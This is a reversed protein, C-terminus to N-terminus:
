GDAYFEGMGPLLLSYIIALVTSKKGSLDISSFNINDDNSNDTKSNKVTEELQLVSKFNNQQPFIITSSILILFAILKM